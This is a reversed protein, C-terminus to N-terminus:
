STSTAGGGRVNKLACLNFFQTFNVLIVTFLFLSQTSRLGEGRRRSFNFNRLSIYFFVLFYAESGRGGDEAFKYIGRVGGEGPFIKEPDACTKASYFNTFPRQFVCIRKM